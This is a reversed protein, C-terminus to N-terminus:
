DKLIIEGSMHVSVVYFIEVNMKRTKRVNEESESTSRYNIINILILCCFM